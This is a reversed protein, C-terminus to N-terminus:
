TSLRFYKFFYLKKGRAQCLFVSKLNLIINLCCTIFHELSYSVSEMEFNSVVNTKSLLCDVKDFDCALLFDLLSDM